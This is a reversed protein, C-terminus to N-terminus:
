EEKQIMNRNRDCKGVSNGRDMRLRVVFIVVLLALIILGLLSIKGLVFLESSKFLLTKDEGVHYFFIFFLRETLRTISLAKRM